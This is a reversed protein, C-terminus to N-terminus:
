LADKKKMLTMSNIKKKNVVHIYIKIKFKIEKKIKMKKYHIKNYLIQKRIIIALILILEVFIIIAIKVILYYCNHGFKGFFKKGNYNKLKM